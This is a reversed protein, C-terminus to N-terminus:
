LAAHGIRHFLRDGPFLELVLISLDGHRAPDEDKVPERRAFVEIGLSPIRPDSGLKALRKDFFDAAGNLPNGLVRFLPRSVSPMATPDAGPAKGIDEEKADQVVVKYLHDGDCV